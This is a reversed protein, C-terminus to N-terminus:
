GLMRLHKCKLEWAFCTLFPMRVQSQLDYGLIRARFYMIRRLWTNGLLSELSRDETGPTCSTLMPKLEMQQSCGARACTVFALCQRIHETSANM